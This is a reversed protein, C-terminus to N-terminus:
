TTIWLFILLMSINFLAHRSVLYLMVTEDRTTCLIVLYVLFRIYLQSSECSLSRWTINLFWQLSKLAHFQNNNHLHRFMDVYIQVWQTV